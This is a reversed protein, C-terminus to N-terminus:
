TYRQIIRTIEEIRYPKSLYDNMGAALCQQQDEKMAYATLALIPTTIGAQRIKETAELGGMVPMQVDMLIISYKKERVMELAEVGNVAFAIDSIGIGILIQELLHRNIEWDEVILVCIDKLDSFSEEEKVVDENVPLTCLPLPLVFSFVAGAGPSSEVEISHGGLLGVLKLSISLGLGTGGYKRSLSTDGQHFAEFIRAKQAADIGPGTDKVTFLVNAVEGTSGEMVTASLRVYGQRTFKVANGTINNLIQQLRIKDTRVYAPLDPSIDLHLAVDSDMTMEVLAIVEGLLSHLDVPGMSVAMRGSEIKSIDLIDNMIGLLSEGSSYIGQVNNRQEETIDSRLLLQSLGLIGNMPTRIEHSMNALFETKLKNASEAKEKAEKLEEHIRLLDQNVRNLERTRDRVREELNKKAEHLAIEAQRRKTIDRIMGELWRKGDKEVLRCNAAIWVRSGDLHRYCLEMQNVFGHRLVEALLKSRDEKNYYLQSGIDQVEATIHEPSDYGFMAAYAPNVELLKGEFDNIYIGETANEFISRFKEEARALEETKHRLESVDRIAVITKDKKPGSPVLRIECCMREGDRSCYFEQVSIERGAFMQQLPEPDDVLNCKWIFQGAFDKRKLGQFRGTAGGRMDVIRGSEDLWLFLDPFVQFVARLDDNRRRLEATSLDLSLQIREITQDFENYAQEVLEFLPECRPVNEGKKELRKLQRQLLRHM